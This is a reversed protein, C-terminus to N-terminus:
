DPRAPTATVSLRGDQLLEWVARATMSVAQNADAGSAVEGAVALVQEFRLPRGACRAVIARKLEELAPPSEVEARAEALLRETVDEGSKTM